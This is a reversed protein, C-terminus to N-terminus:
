WNFRAQLEVRRGGGGGGGFPGFGGATSTSEGFRSSALNGVPTSLNVTNFLNSIQVGFTLNYPNSGGAGGGFMGGMGGGFGGGGGRNGGGGGGGTPRDGGGQPQPQPTSSTSAREGGFGFSKSLNLNVNFFAPGRGYNRPVVANPDKGATNCYSATIQRESCRIALQAFTPRELNVLDGNPDVGSTINFPRGSSAIIFPSMRINWPLTIQGGLFFNHRVDLASNGYEGTLDYAYAPSSGAGDTDSKAFGLRYNGFLSIKQNVQTRFNLIVQQQNLVGSSEYQNINGLAPNPRLSGSCNTSTACIPANINRSRLLHINRSVIFFATLTTRFPLQREVGFAGQVTYPAKLDSAVTRQTTSFPVVAAIQAVTPVNTVGNLTFTSQGLLAIAAARRVPDPENVSVVYNLQRTGDFRISQLTLNESFRDFFVGVGGRFVTKPQKAGGAGPSWAYSFRPAFNMKDSINNQNEYRLGFSLTLDQRVRWDDSFFAGVDVQSVDALPNGSTINFQTPNYRPDASGLVKARYQEIASVVGDANTDFPDNPSFFGLFTFTGGFGSESRDKISVGRVRVGFKIGHESKSGASTTTYNQLEWNKQQNTNLGIQAGGGTFAQSVSITPITNDGTQNRKEWEYSFRTENVTKPNIVATETLRIEHETNTTGFARTPLSLDGIGQNDSKVRTFSYRGVLTNKDNIAYDFRPGISFRKTPISFEQQFPVINLTSDLVTANLLSGNVIDRNSIDFFFSSKGKVIPGSVNGGYFKTQSDARNAAFPNRSNFIEDNFNLFAQGRWRDSGPKTLIEIRGFGLRDYEASFPNQNIRIERISDKPPLRGGTFGDVYIQGGNPGSSPGALAQLAAELEEENDPLGELDKGKLVTADKNNNPDNDVQQDSNIEVNENVSQVTLAVTLENKAGATVDVESQEYIAFRPAIVRVIYKGPALGGVLFEGQKNTIVSKEKGASNVVVVNAGVVVAGLSDFVQGGVSGNQQARVSAVTMVTMIAIFALFKFRSM